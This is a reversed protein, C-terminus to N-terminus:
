KSDVAIQNRGLRKARYLAKDAAAIIEIHDMMESSYSALGASCSISIKSGDSTLISQRTWKNRLRELCDMAQDSTMRPFVICFEDGGIRAISDETRFERSLLLAFACIALDGSAHGHLDNISKLNDLDCLAVSLPEEHRKASGFCETLRKTIYRRNHVGTLSDRYVDIELQEEIGKAETVDRFVIVGGQVIDHADRLPRGTAKIFRGLAHRENRIFLVAEDRDVGQIAKFLPLDKAPYPTVRDTKYIGYVDPWHELTCASNKMGLIEAAAPNYLLILGDKDAVVVGEGLCDLIMELIDIKNQLSSESM